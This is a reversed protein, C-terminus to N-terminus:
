PATGSIRFGTGQPILDITRYRAQNGQPLSTFGHCNRSLPDGDVRADARIVLRDLVLSALKLVDGAPVAPLDDLDEGVAAHATALRAVLTWRHPFQHLTKHTSVEIHDGGPGDIPEPSRQLIQEGEETLKVGFPNIQVQVPLPQIGRCWSPPRQELHKADKGLELSGHDLLADSGTHLTGLQAPGLGAPGNATGPDGGGNLFGDACRLSVAFADQADGAFEADASTGHLPYDCRALSTVAALHLSRRYRECNPAALYQGQEQEDACPPRSGVISTL